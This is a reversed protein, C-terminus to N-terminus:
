FLQCGERGGVVVVLTEKGCCVLGPVQVTHLIVVHSLELKIDKDERFRASLRKVWEYSKLAELERGISM